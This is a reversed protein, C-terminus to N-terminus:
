EKKHLKIQVSTWGTVPSVSFYCDILEYGRYRREIREKLKGDSQAKLYREQAGLTYANDNLTEVPQKLNRSGSWRCKYKRDRSQKMLYLALPELGNEEMRPQLRQCSVRGKDWLAEIEDRPVNGSILLHYHLRTMGEGRKKPVGGEKVIIYRLPQKRKKYLYRMRKLLNDLDKKAEEETPQNMYTADFRYDGAGFNTNVLRVFKKKSKRDNYDFQRPATVKGRKYRPLRRHQETTYTYVGVELYEKGCKTKKERVFRM